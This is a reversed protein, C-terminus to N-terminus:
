EQSYSYARANRAEIGATRGYQGALRLQVGAATLQAKPLDGITTAGYHRYANNDPLPVQARRTSSLKAANNAVNSHMIKM